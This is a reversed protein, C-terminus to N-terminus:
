FYTAQIQRVIEEKSQGQLSMAQVDLAEYVCVGCESGHLEYGGDRLFCDRLDRHVRGYHPHMMCGCACPVGELATPSQAAFTYAERVVASKKAFDPLPPIGPSPGAALDGPSSPRLPATVFVVAGLAVVLVVLLLVRLPIEVTPGEAPHHGGAPNRRAM